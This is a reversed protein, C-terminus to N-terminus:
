IIILEKESNTINEVFDPEIIIIDEIRVGGFNEIYIGPEVTIVNGFEAIDPSKPSFNPNEHIEIGVSHGLSHSFYNGYGANEIVKRAAMDIESCKRGSKVASIGARQAEFVVSYIEKQRGDAEGFVVTRTMDSCYGDLICGFDLTLFDGREIIKDSATGHPMASRLGSAAITEFSLASAGNKKMFMEIEFAAEKETMGVHLINLVHSFAADGLAEAQRIKEKECPEKIKRPESIIAGAAFFCTKPSAKKLKEFEAVTIYNEEYGLKEPKVTEFLKSLGGSINYMEFDPAQEAAQITYRSDTIIFARDSTVLLAADESKFGSYYFVNAKGTIYFGDCDTMKSRLKEIRM